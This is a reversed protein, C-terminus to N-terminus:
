DDAEHLLDALFFSEVLFAMSYRMGHGHHGGIQMMNRTRNDYALMRWAVPDTEDSVTQLVNVCTELAAQEAVAFDGGVTLSASYKRLM